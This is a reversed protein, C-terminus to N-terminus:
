YKKNILFPELVYDIAALYADEPSDRECTYLIRDDPLYRVNSFWQKSTYNYDVVIWKNFRDLTLNLFDPINELRHYIFEKRVQIMTDTLATKNFVTM